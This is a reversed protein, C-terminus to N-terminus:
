IISVGFLISFLFTSLALQKLYPDLLKPDKIREVAMANRIFFPVSLLFVLRHWQYDLLAIFISASVLGTALLLWHYVIAKERGLRVPISHKGARADVERDRLNNVNLVATSFAGLAVAPLLIQAQLGRTFLFYTGGVGVVGFFVLVALDGLGAYGYPNSGATYYYAALLCLVGLLLFVLFYTSSLGFAYYLLEIGFVLSLVVFVIIGRKMSSASIEGAQVTRMPGVRLDNDAGHIADGYDNALNSLIQLCITTFIALIFITWQFYGTAFALFSGTGISSLALPLTRLRM